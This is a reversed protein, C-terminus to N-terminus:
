EVGKLAEVMNIDKVKSSIMDNVALSLLFSISFALIYPAPSMRKYLFDSDADLQGMMFELLHSGILLGAVTGIGTILINQQQLIWRIKKTSFGLVKLTAIDRTKEMFSMVGLNNMVVLGIMVAMVMIYTVETDLTKKRARLSKIYADKSFVSIIEERDIVYSQPVTMDTFM